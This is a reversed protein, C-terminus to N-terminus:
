LRVVVFGLVGIFLVFGATIFFNFKLDPYMDTDLIGSTKMVPQVAEYLIASTAILLGVIIVKMIISSISGSSVSFPSVFFLLM